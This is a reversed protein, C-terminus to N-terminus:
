PSNSDSSSAAVPAANTLSNAVQIRTKEPLGYAGVTVVTQGEKLGPAAIEVWGDERFGTQVPTQTAQDGEVVALVSKGDIDTVVSEEPAALCNTHTATLIRLSVFQGPRPGIAAPLLARASVTDNNTDVASSIFSIRAEVPPQTLLQVEDGPNVEDMKPAPIDTTVALRKLDVVEAVVTNVDVAQGLRANLRVVTGSLPAVVQLAALQAQADQLSKLSTNHEAYLKRQRELEVRANEISVSGANLELLVDGKQVEGGQTVNVKAVIGAVQPALSTGGAPQSTTAPAPEISGFGEIYHHLTLRKLTGVQVPIVSPENQDTADPTATKHSRTLLYAGGGACLAL